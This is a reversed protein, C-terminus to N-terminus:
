LYPSQANWAVCTNGYRPGFSCYDCLWTHFTGNTPWPSDPGYRVYTDNLLEAAQQLTRLTADHNAESLMLDPAEEPTIIQPTVQKTVVHWEVDKDLILSYIHGQFLWNPKPKSMKKASTKREIIRHAEEVDPYGLIPVPIGPLKEEFRQEVKIPNITPSVQDHYLLVMQQGQDHIKIEESGDWDPDGNEDLAKGWETTYLAAMMETTMDVGTEIKQTLNWAHTAHDVTGIFQSLGYGEPIKKIRRLRYQEPCQIFLSLASASLHDM